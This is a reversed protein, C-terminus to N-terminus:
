RVYNEDSCKKRCCCNKEIIMFMITNVPNKSIKINKRIVMIYLRMCALYDINCKIIQMTIQMDIAQLRM